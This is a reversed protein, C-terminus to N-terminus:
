SAAGWVDATAADVYHWTIDRSRAVYRAVEEQIKNLHEAPKHVCFFVTDLDSRCIADYIHADKSSAGHGFIFLSGSVSALADYCHHLYPVSKIKSIKQAATGEAVILPSQSRERITAAIDDIIKSGTLVRKVTDLKPDLFLHLAGHLYYTNCNAGLSFTRFGDIGDGLGFGDQFGRTAALVVWYLLLDYNLTFIRDFRMLFKGCAECQADPIEFRIGPHVERIAAILADRVITSDNWFQEAKAEDGYAIEIHAAEELARMVVEFDYVRLKEFVKRIPSDSPLKCVELLNAYLFHGGGQAISFGNGLLVTRMRGRSAKIAQEFSIVDPM